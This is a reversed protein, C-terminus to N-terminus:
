GIILIFLAAFFGLIMLGYGLRYCAQFGRSMSKSGWSIYIGNVLLSVKATLFLIFGMCSMLLAGRPGITVLLVLLIMTPLMLEAIPLLIIDTGGSGDERKKRIWISM